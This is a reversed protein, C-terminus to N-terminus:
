NFKTLISDLEELNSYHLSIRGGNWSNEVVVKVGFKESLSQGLMVLDEDIVKDKEKTVSNNAKEKRRKNSVLEEVQRVNLDNAVVKNAIEEANELGILCRAHGMSLQGNNIMFKISEPLQNLRLLNAVHSRSKGVVVALEGQSYGYEKILKQFGEAEEIATLEQRQINEILAIELIEKETLDKIIVPVQRLGAIKCARFRREGAIIKYKGSQSKNVIIPQVLGHSNISDALEKIKEEDFYKRPQDENVEILELDINNSSTIIEISTIEENLLSSLGRGLARNRM